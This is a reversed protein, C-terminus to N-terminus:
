CESRHQFNAFSTAAHERSTATEGALVRRLSPPPSATMVAITIAQASFFSLDRIQYKLGNRVNMIGGIMM